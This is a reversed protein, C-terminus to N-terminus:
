GLEFLWKANSCQLPPQGTGRAGDKYVVAILIIYALM